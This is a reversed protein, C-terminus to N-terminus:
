FHCFSTRTSWMRRQFQQDHTSTPSSKVESLPLIREKQSGNPDINNLGVAGWGEGRSQILKAASSAKM